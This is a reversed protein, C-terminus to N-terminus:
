TKLIQGNGAEKETDSRQSSEDGPYHWDKQIDSMSDQKGGHITTSPGLTKDREGLELYNGQLLRPDYPDQWSATKGTHASSGYKKSIHSPSKTQRFTSIKSAIKPLFHRFFQPLVPLCGCLIGSAIEAITWLAVPVLDYNPDRSHLTQISYVLRMISAFCGFLGAAFVASIGLKRRTPMHLAATTIFAINVNVCHGPITPDWIKTRPVCQFIEVLTDAIYFLCNTWILVNISYFMASRRTPVFIRIYQLLISLKTIFILPGYFIEEANALKLWQMEKGLPTDWIHNGDSTRNNCIAITCYGVFGSWAIFSTYDEDGHSKNILFKTYIRLWVFITAVSLCIILTPNIVALQNEPNIFNPTVGPPPPAAPTDDLSSASLPQATQAM